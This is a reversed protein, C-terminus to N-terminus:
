LLRAVLRDVCIRELVGRQLLVEELELERDIPSPQASEEIPHCRGIPESAVISSSPRFNMRRAECINRRSTSGPRGPGSITSAIELLKTVRSIPYIANRVLNAQRVVILVTETTSHCCEYVNSAAPSFRPFSIAVCPAPPRKPPTVWPRRVGRQAGTAAFRIRNSRM